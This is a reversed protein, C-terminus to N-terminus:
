HVPGLVSDLWLLVETMVQNRHTILLAHGGDYVIHKKEQPATGLLKYLPKQSAEVPFVIDDDGNLMLVPVSARPAFHYPDVEPFPRALTLGGVILIGTKVRPELALLIPGMRAGWSYGYYALLNVDVDPRTALYEVARFFDKATRIVWDRYSPTEDPYSIVRDTRREFTADYVPFAVARGSMILFDFEETSRQEFSAASIANAGPFFVVTQYPPKVNKPVFLYVPFRQNGYAANLTIRERTWHPSSSDISEVRAAFATRDYSYSRKYVEFVENSALAESNFDRTPTDIPRLLEALAEPKEYRVTRFGNVPSRDLPALAAVEVFKYAPDSWAGGLIYRSRTGGVENWTWERANGAMDYTGFPSMGGGGPRLGQNRFNSQAIISSAMTGAAGASISAWHYVTPLSKGVFEAYAAAEYWSVGTVPYDEQGTPYTGGQWTAPGPRATTDRFKAMAERWPLTRGGEAEDVFAHKWFKESEYGGADVFQKFQRNTVEYRDIEYAPAAVSKMYNFGSLHIGLSRAPIRVMGAAVTGSQPLELKLPQGAPVVLDLTEFGEKKLRLRQLGRPLRAASLPTQGLHRWDENTSDYPKISVDVAPPETVISQFESFKPWLDSLIPDNPIHREAREAIAFAAPYSDTEILRLIQPIAEERAWRTEANLRSSWFAAAAVLVLGALSALALRPTVASRWSTPADNVAQTSMTLTSQAKRADALFDLASGYRSERGKKLARLVIQEVDRPVGPRVSCPTKPEHNSIANMLAWHDEARFPLQGAIMEYLVVGLSWLDSQQDVERGALHEPSMYAVTGVTTGTRTLGTAGALKAIGFDVIKVLGSKVIMVNAPKIDRHVIGAKHAEALGQAIQISIDLAEDVSPSGRKLRKSLTEGEYYAMAIFQQDDPTADIEHITCINPHDLASAAKAEQIFRQRADDDRTLDTPLFKLAVFRDLRVDLAKYVVGMGGGGLRELVKYHSLTQGEM